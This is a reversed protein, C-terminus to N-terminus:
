MFSRPAQRAQKQEGVVLVQVNIIRKSVIRKLHLDLTHRAQVGRERESAACVVRNM